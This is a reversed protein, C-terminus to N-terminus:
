LQLGLSSLSPRKKELILSLSSSLFNFIYFEFLFEFEFKKHFNKHLNKTFECNLCFDILAAFEFFNMM